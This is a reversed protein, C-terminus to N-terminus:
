NHMALLDLAQRGTCGVQLQSFIDKPTVETYLSNSDRLERVCTDAVIALM